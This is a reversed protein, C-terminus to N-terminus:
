FKLVQELHYVCLLIKNRTPYIRYSSKLRTANQLIRAM